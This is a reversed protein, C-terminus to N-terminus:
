VCPSAVKDVFHPGSVPLICTGEVEGFCALGYRGGQPVKCMSYIPWGVPTNGTKSLVRGYAGSTGQVNSEDSWGM